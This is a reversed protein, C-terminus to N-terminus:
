DTINLTDRRIEDAYMEHIKDIIFQEVHVKENEPLHDLLFLIRDNQHKINKLKDFIKEIM